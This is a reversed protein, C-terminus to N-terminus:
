EGQLELKKVWKVGEAQTITLVEITGGVGRPGLSLSQATKTTNILMIALNVADQLSLFQYPIQFTLHKALESALTDPDTSPSLNALISPLNYDYGLIMRHVIESQGGWRIGFSDGPFHQTPEPADPIQIEYIEGHPEHPNAGAVIFYLGAAPDTNWHKSFFSSLRKAYDLTSLTNTGIEQQFEPILSNILRGAISSQGYALAAIRNHNNGMTLIKTSNDFYTEQQSPLTITARTDSALVIGQPGKIAIVLSM